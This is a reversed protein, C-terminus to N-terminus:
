EERYCDNCNFVRVFSDTDKSPLDYTIQHSAEKTISWENGSPCSSLLFRLLFFFVLFIYGSVDTLTILLNLLQYGDPSTGVTKQREGLAIMRTFADLSISDNLSSLQTSSSDRDMM